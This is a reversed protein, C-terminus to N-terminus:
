LLASNSLLTKKMSKLVGFSLKLSSCPINNVIQDIIEFHIIIFYNATYM